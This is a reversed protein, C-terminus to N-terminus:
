LLYKKDSRKLKFNRSKEDFILNNIEIVKGSTVDYNVKVKNLFKNDICNILFLKLTNIEDDTLTIENIENDINAIKFTQNKYKENIFINLKLKAVNIM